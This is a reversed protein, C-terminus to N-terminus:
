QPASWIKGGGKMLDALSVVEIRWPALRLVGFTPDAKGGPWFAIPDYGVPEPTAKFLDWIRSKVDARDEWEARCDAYVQELNPNAYSLSVYPNKELHKAKLSQRSSLIWGTSGEWLPHLIRSRLRRGRNATAVNCWVIEQVRKTFEPEIEAFSAVRM